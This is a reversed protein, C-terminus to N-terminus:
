KRKSDTLTIGQGTVKFNVITTNPAAKGVAFTWEIAKAIAVPGTLSELDVSNVYVVSCAVLVFVFASSTLVPAQRCTLVPATSSAIGEKIITDTTMRFWCQYLRRALALKKPRM